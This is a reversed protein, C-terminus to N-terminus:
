SVDKVEVTVTSSYKGGSGEGRKDKVEDGTDGTDDTGDGEREGEACLKNYLEMVERLLKGSEQSEGVMDGRDGKMESM